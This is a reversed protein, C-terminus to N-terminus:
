VQEIAAPVPATWEMLSPSRVAQPNVVQRPSMADQLLLVTEMNVIEVLLQFFTVGHHLDKNSVEQWVLWGPGFLDTMAGALQLASHKQVPGTKSRLISDLGYRIQWPWEGLNEHGHKMLGLQLDLGQAFM